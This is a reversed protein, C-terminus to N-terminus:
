GIKPPIGSDASHSNSESPSFANMATTPSPAPGVNKEPSFSAPNPRTMAQMAIANIEWVTVMRTPRYMMFICGPMKSPTQLPAPVAVGDNSATCSAASLLIGASPYPRGYASPFTSRITQPM